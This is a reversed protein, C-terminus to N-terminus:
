KVDDEGVELSNEDYESDEILTERLKVFSKIEKVLERAFFYEVFAMSFLEVIM